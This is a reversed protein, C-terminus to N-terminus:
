FREVRRYIKPPRGRRTDGPDRPEDGVYEILGEELMRNIVAYVNGYGSFAPCDYAAKRIQTGTIEKEARRPLSKYLESVLNKIIDYQTASSSRSATLM